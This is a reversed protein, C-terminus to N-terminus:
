PQPSRLHPPVFRRPRFFFFLSAAVLFALLSFLGLVLDLLIVIVAVTGKAGSAAESVLGIVAWSGFMVSTPILTVALVALSREAQLTNRPNVPLGRWVRIGAIGAIASFAFAGAVVNWGLAKVTITLVPVSDNDAGHV